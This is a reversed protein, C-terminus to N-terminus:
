PTETKIIYHNAGSTKKRLSCAIEYSVHSCAKMQCLSMATGHPSPIFGSSIYEVSYQRCRKKAVSAIRVRIIFFFYMVDFVIFTVDYTYLFLAFTASDTTNMLKDSSIIIIITCKITEYWCIILFCLEGYTKSVHFALNCIM